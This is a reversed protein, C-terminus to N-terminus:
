KQRIYKVCKVHWSNHDLMTNVDNDCIEDAGLRYWLYMSKYAKIYKTRWDKSNKLNSALFASFIKLSFGPIFVKYNSLTCTYLIYWACLQTQAFENSTVFGNALTSRRFVLPGHTVDRVLAVSSM